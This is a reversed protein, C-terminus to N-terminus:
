APRSTTKTQEVGLTILKLQPEKRAVRVCEVARGFCHQLVQAVYLISVMEAWSSSIREPKHM